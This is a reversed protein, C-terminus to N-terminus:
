PALDDLLVLDVTDTTDTDVIVIGSVDGAALAADVPGALLTSPSNAATVYVDYADVVPTEPDADPDFELYDTDAAFPLSPM